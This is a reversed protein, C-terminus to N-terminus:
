LIWHVAHWAKDLSVEPGLHSAHPEGLARDLAAAGAVGRRDVRDTARGLSMGVARLAAHVAREDVGMVATPVPGRRVADAFLIGDLLGPDKRLLAALAPSVSRVYGYMGM